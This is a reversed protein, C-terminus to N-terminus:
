AKKYAEVSKAIKDAAADATIKGSLCDQLAPVMDKTVWDTYWTTSIAKVTEGIYVATKFQREYEELTNFMKDWLDRIEPNAKSYQPWGSALAYKARGDAMVYRGDKTHGGIYQLFLWSWERDAANKSMSWLNGSFTQTGIQFIKHVGASPSKAPDNANNMYRERTNTYLYEGAAYAKIAPIWRLELCSPDAIKWEQITDRWWKLTKRAVSNGDLLINLQDDFLKGGEAAILHYWTDSIHEPGVGAQWMIPYKCVGDAKAKKCMEGLEEFTKPLTTFKAKEWLRTNYCNTNLSLFYPLGWVKGQYTVLDRAAPYMNKLYEDLGPLGDIPQVVGEKIWKAMNFNNMVTVDLQDGALTMSLVKQFTEEINPTREWQMPIGTDQEWVRGIEEVAPTDGDVTWYVLVMKSPKPKPAATPAAAKAATPAAAPAAPTPQACGALVLSGGVLGTWRLFERRSINKANM